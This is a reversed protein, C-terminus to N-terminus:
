GNRSLPCKFLSPVLSTCDVDTSFVIVVVQRSLLPSPCLFYIPFYNECHFCLSVVALGSLSVMFLLLVLLLPLMLVGLLGVLHLEVFSSTGGLSLLKIWPFFLFSCSTLLTHKLRYPGM